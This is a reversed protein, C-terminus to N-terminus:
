RPSYSANPFYGRKSLGELSAVRVNPSIEALVAVNAQSKDLLDSTEAALSNINSSRGLPVPDEVENSNSRRRRSIRWFSSLDPPQVLERKQCSALLISIKDHIGNASTMVYARSTAVEDNYDLFDPLTPLDALNPNIKVVPVILRDTEPQREQINFMERLIQANMPPICKEDSESTASSVCDDNGIDFGELEDELYNEDEDDNNDDDGSLGDDSCVSGPPSLRDVDRSAVM